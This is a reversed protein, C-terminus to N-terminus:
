TVNDDKKPPNKLLGLLDRKTNVRGMEDMGAKFNKELLSDKPKM